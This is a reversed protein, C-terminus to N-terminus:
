VSAQGGVLMTPGRQEILRERLRSHLVKGITSVPLDDVVVIERPVKYGALHRRCEARVEESDIQAGPELVVAAVVQEGQAGPLGVVAAEAIGPMAVLVREVETPYVNFGGVLILEKIRDVVRVFSDPDQVVVDGTRMWGDPLLSEATEGPKNWYGSFVQPGRVLLEGPDGPAVDITPDNRDVIRMDTSPFPIGIAGPRRTGSAPNGLTIPSTETMGYGEILLGGSADEWLEVIEPALSMAGALALKVSSLSVGREKARAVLRPYMPPVGPLFTAPKRKMADLMLDVDFRPFLVTTAGLMTSTVLCLMLGYAHFLPLAAYFVESGPKLMPVWAVSQAGNALLNRHTLIAGKPRGTTGGTYQLLAVDAEVPRETSPDLPHGAAVLDAWRALGPAPKTMADRMARARAIPLRLALRKSTPLDRSINVAVVTVGSPAAQQAMLAIADWCIIVRAGHDAFQYALEDETYLPNHEVVIAGLRLIAHFVVVHETCNPLVIAVRDGRVVGLDQLISAAVSVRQGLVAFTTERGFFDLAVRDGFSEVALDLMDVLSGGPVSIEAPVGPAYHALWPREFPM